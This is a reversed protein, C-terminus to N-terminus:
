CGGLCVTTRGSNIRKLLQELDLRTEQNRERQLVLEGGEIKVGVISSYSKGSSNLVEYIANTRSIAILAGSSHSMFLRGELAATDTIRGRINAAAGNCTYSNDSEISIISNSDFFITKEAYRTGDERRGGQLIKCETDYSLSRIQSLSVGSIEGCKRIVNDLCSEMKAAQAQSALVTVVLTLFLKKM